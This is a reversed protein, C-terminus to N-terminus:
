PASWCYKITNKMLEIDDEELIQNNKIKLLFSCCESDRVVRALGYYYKFVTRPIPRPAIFLEGEIAKYSFLELTKKLLMRNTQIRFYVMGM